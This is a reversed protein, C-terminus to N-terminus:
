GFYFFMLKVDKSSIKEQSSNKNKWVKYFKEEKTLWYKNTMNLFNKIDGAMKKRKRSVKQSGKKLEERINRASLDKSM